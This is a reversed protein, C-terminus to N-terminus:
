LVHLVQFTLEWSDVHRRKSLYLTKTLTTITTPLM